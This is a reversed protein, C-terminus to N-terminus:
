VTLEMQDPPVRLVRLDRYEPLVRLDTRVMLEMRDGIEKLETRVPKVL